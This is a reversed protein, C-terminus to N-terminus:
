PGTADGCSRSLGGMRGHFPRKGGSGKCSGPIRGNFRLIMSLRRATREDIGLVDVHVMLDEEGGM